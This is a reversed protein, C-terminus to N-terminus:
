NMQFMTAVMDAYRIKHLYLIRLDFAEPTVWECMIINPIHEPREGQIISYKHDFERNRAVFEELDLYIVAEAQSPDPVFSMCCSRSLLQAFTQGDAGKNVIHM